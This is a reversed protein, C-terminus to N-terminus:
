REVMEIAGSAPDDTVYRVELVLQPLDARHSVNLRRLIAITHPFREWMNV